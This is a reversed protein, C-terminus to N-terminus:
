SKSAFTFPGTDTSAATAAAARSTSTDTMAVSGSDGAHTALPIRSAWVRYAAASM